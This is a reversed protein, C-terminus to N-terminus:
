NQKLIDYKKNSALHTLGTAIADYEDDYKIDKNIKILKNVMSIVQKKDSKGYGTTAIKIQLPSYEFVPIKNFLAQYMIVGRAESVGMVTKQNTTFFLTEIALAKPAYEKILKDIEQGILFLRETLPIKSSTKFCDSYILEEKGRDNKELIAIGVREYGPDISIIKM